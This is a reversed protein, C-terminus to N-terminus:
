GDVQEQWDDTDYIPADTASFSKDCFEQDGLNSM